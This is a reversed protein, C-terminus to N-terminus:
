AYLGQMDKILFFGILTTLAVAVSLYQWRRPHLGRWLWRLTAVISVVAIVDLAVLIGLAALTAASRMAGTAALLPFVFPLAIYRLSCRVGAILLPTEFPRSRTPVATRVPEVRLVWAVTQDKPRVVRCSPEPLKRGPSAPSAAGIGRNSADEESGRPVPCTQTTFDPM